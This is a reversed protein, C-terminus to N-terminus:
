HVKHLAQRVDAWLDEPHEIGVAIRVTGPEIGVAELRREDLQRHSTGAPHSVLTKVDGLSVAALALRLADTFVRGAERGGALDLALVGGGAGGDLLRVALERDPHSELSPHHVATVAPDASLREALLKANDCQRQVRLSLTRLGRLALWAPIPAATAGLQCSYDRIRRHRERDAFVAIGGLADGHGGIYKSTSHVVVDAGHEIPRCPVPTAFTNDVVSMVGHERAVAFLGPLDAIRTTPNGITELYLLKTNPRLAARMEEVDHGSVHTVEVGWRQALDALLALTAGYLGRQAIVHDGSSLSGLLVTSIASM